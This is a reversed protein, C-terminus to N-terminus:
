ENKQLQYKNIIKAVKDKDINGSEDKALQELLVEIRDKWDKETDANNPNFSDLWPKLQEKMSSNPDVKKFFLTKIIAAAHLIEKLEVRLNNKDALQNVKIEIESEQLYKSIEEFVEEEGKPITILSKMMEKEERVAFGLWEMIAEISRYNQIVTQRTTALEVLTRFSASTQLASDNAGSIALGFLEAIAEALNILKVKKGQNGPTLPDTDIIEMEIPFKGIREDLTNEQYALFQALSTISTNGKNELLSTPMNAPLDDVGIAISVKRLLSLVPELNCCETMDDEPPIPPDPEKPPEKPPIIGKGKELEYVFLVNVCASDMNKRSVNNGGIITENYFGRALLDGWKGLEVFTETGLGAIGPRENWAHHSEDINYFSYNGHYDLKINLIIDYDYISVEPHYIKKRMLGALSPSGFTGVSKLPAGNAINAKIENDTYPSFSSAYSLQEYKSYSWGNAPYISHNFTSASWGLIVAVSADPDIAPVPNPSVPPPYRIDDNPVPPPDEPAPPPDEPAPPPDKEDDEDKRCRQYSTGIGFYTATITTCTEGDKRIQNVNVSLGGGALGFQSGIVEGTALDISGGVTVGIADGPMGLDVAVTGVDGNVNIDVGMPILDLGVVVSVSDGEENNWLEKSLSISGPDTDIDVDVPNDEIWNSKNSGKLDSYGIGRGNGSDEYRLKGQEMSGPDFLEPNEEVARIFDEATPFRETSYIDRLRQGRNKKSASPSSGFSSSSRRTAGRVM